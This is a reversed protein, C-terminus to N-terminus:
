APNPSTVADPGVAAGAWVVWGSDGSEGKEGSQGCAAWGPVGSDRGSRRRTGWPKGGGRRRAFSANPRKLSCGVGTEKEGRVIFSVLHEQGLIRVGRGQVGVGLLGQARCSWTAPDTRRGTSAARPGAGAARGCGERGRSAEGDSGSDEGACRGAPGARGSQELYPRRRRQSVGPPPVGPVPAGPGCSGEPMVTGPLPPCTM